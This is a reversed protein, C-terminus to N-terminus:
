HEIDESAAVASAVSSLVSVIVAFVIVLFGGGLLLFTGDM